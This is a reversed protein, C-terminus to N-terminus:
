PHAGLGSLEMQEYQIPVFTHVVEAIVFCVMGYERLQKYDTWYKKTHM